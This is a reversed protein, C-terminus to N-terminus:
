VRYSEATFPVTAFMEAFRDAVRRGYREAIEQAGMNTSIITIRQRDYRECLLDILPESVNGYIKSETPEVGLEDIALITTALMINYKGQPDTSESIIRKAKVVSVVNYGDVTPKFRNDEDREREICRNIVAVIANLLTTKGTGVNGYLLLGPRKEKNCLWSAVDRINQLMDQSLKVYNEVRVRKLVEAKYYHGLLESVQEITFPLAFRVPSPTAENNKKAKLIEAAIDFGRKIEM